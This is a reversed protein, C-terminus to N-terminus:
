FGIATGDKRPDSGGILTGTEPDILIMQGGGIPGKPPVVRHGRTTLGKLTAETAHAELELAGADNWFVRAADIAAQPNFGHDRMLSWVHAHGVSQYQGGMVGFPALISGGQMALGPIITHFPRKSPALANPHDPDLSFGAGRNQLLIGFENTTIGSGFGAFISTILSVAMGNPDVVCLYTTDGKLAPLRNPLDKNREAPDIEKAIEVALSKDIFASPSVRMMNPDAIEQDRLAYAARSAEILLHAREPGTPDLSAIDFTELINLILQATIGQGNPPLELIDIGRYSSSIPNVTDAIHSALDEESMVGGLDALTSVLDAAVPGTYFGEAGQEAIKELAKALSPFRMWTGAKPAKGGPLYHARGGETAKLKAEGERWDFAIRPAVPTGSTAADIAYSLVTDLGMSGHASILAEWGKVAGPVTVAHPSTQPFTENAGPKAAEGASARISTFLHDLSLAAPARGSSNLGAVSVTPKTKNSPIEDEPKAIIAFLDGGLGSMAPEVVALLAAAAIAADVANGGRRLIDLAAASATPHATAVMGKTAFAPSRGPASFDRDFHLEM